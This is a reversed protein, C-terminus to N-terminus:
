KNLLYIELLDNDVKDKSYINMDVKPAEIGKGFESKSKFIRIEDVLNQKIFSNLTVAGGEIIVSGINKKYLDDMISNLFDDEYAKVYEVTNEVSKKKLNYCILKGSNFINLDTTVSLNKDILIKVPDKGYWERVNLQPNDHCATRPGIMIADEESRWKHVLMRSVSSSIWKSEYNERAIFGDLTQAWKLIIYPRNKKIRTFFRRNLFEGDKELIGTDVRIGAERIIQIGKGAVLPYPDINCVVVRKFPYKKILEACPPTKGHHACPELNVFLEAGDLVSKDKLKNIANAEAHPEGFKEHWGESIIKGNKVIVCGVLPNPSVNGLGLSALQFTRQIFIEDNLIM